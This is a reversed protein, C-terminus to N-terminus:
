ALFLYQYFIFDMAIMVHFSQVLITLMIISAYAYREIAREQWNEEFNLGDNKYLTDATM